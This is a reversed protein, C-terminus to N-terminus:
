MAEPILFTASAAGMGAIVGTIIRRVSLWWDFTADANSQKHRYYANLDTALSAVAGTAVMLIQNTNM